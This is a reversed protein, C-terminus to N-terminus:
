VIRWRLPALSYESDAESMSATFAAGFGGLLAGPIGGLLSAQTVMGGFTYSGVAGAELSTTILGAIVAGVVFGTAAGLTAVATRHVGQNHVIVRDLGDLPLAVLAADREVVVVRQDCDAGALTVHEVAGRSEPTQWSASLVTGRRLTRVARDPGQLGIDSQLNLPPPQTLPRIRPQPAVCATCLLLTVALCM